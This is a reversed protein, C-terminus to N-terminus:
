IIAGTSMVANANSSLSWFDTPCVKKMVLKDSYSSLVYFSIIVITSQM